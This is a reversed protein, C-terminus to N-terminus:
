SDRLPSPSRSVASTPPPRYLIIIAPHTTAHYQITVCRYCLHPQPQHLRRFSASYHRCHCRIAVTICTTFPTPPPQPSSTCFLHLICPSDHRRRACRRRVRLPRRYRWRAIIAIQTM